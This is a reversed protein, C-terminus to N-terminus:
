LYASIPTGRPRMEAEQLAALTAALEQSFSGGDSAVVSQFDNPHAAGAFAMSGMVGPAFRSGEENTWAVVEVATDTEHGADELAELVEFAALTGLAGDFRGGTPQSDLHSGILMPPLAPNRGERRVFLNAIADQFVKFGCAAALDALLGRAARDESSLAQRNVGGASTKGIEAFESLRRLLREGNVEPRRRM